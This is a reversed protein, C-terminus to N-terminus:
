APARTGGGRRRPNLRWLLHWAMAAVPRPIHHSRLCAQLVPVADPHAHTAPDALLVALAEAGRGGEALGRACALRTAPDLEAQALIAAARAAAAPTHIELATATLSGADRPDRFVEGPAPARALLARWRDALAGADM